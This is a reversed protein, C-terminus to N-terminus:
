AAVAAGDSRPDSVAEFERDANVRIIGAHGMARCYPVVWETQHGMQELEQRVEDAFRKELKLTISEAGWTRGLLWRPAEIAEAPSLGFDRLRTVLAAQTQPQGEGGMTGYVLALRGDAFGMAPNLTHLTRKGPAICNVHTRALSFACGRNQWLIGTDGLVVGSGFPHYISQIASVARGRGDVAGYWVTDSEGKLPPYPRARKPDIQAALSDLSPACLLEDVPVQSFDPDTVYRDRVEFALKTAEVVEHVYRASLHGFRAFDRRELIGLILLSALGQTPPPMNRLTMGRYGCKIPEVWRARYASLDAASLLSGAESLGRAIRAALAGRYFSDGGERQLQRLTAGLAPQAFTVAPDAKAVPAIFVAAFGPLHEIEGRRESLVECHDRSLGFGREAYNAADELLDGWSFRGNWKARSYEYASNWLEVLGAVTNVAAPGREPIRELGQKLYTQASYNRGAPGAGDLGRLGGSEDAILWFGDGGISCMHPYVVALTAATALAAEIANGGRRLVAAGSASALTHPSTVVGSRSRVTEVSGM